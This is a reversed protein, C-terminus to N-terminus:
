LSPTAFGNPLLAKQRKFAEDELHILAAKEPESLTKSHERFNRATQRVRALQALSSSPVAQTTLHIKEMVTLPAKPQTPLPQVLNESPRRGGFICAFLM